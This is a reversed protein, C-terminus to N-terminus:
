LSLSHAAISLKRRVATSWLTHFRMGPSTSWWRCSPRCWCHLIHCSSHLNRSCAFTSGPAEVFSSWRVLGSAQASTNELALLFSCALRLESVLPIMCTQALASSGVPAWLFSGCHALASSCWHAQASVLLPPWPPKCHHCHSDHSIISRIWGM